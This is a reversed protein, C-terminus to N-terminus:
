ANFVELIPRLFEVDKEGFANPLNSDIDLVAMLAGSRNFVPMVLESQTSSACAIHDTEQMVDEIIQIEGTRACRGCIGRTFPITLCGHTGQYPGVKLIDNGINRYFGVWHYSAFRHFLECSITAMIAIEDPEGEVMSIIEQAASKNDEQANL